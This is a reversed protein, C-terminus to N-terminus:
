KRKEKRATCIGELLFYVCDAITATDGQRAEEGGSPKWRSKEEGRERDEKCKDLM